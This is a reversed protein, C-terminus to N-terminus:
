IYFGDGFSDVYYYERGCVSVNYTCNAIAHEEKPRRCRALTFPAPPHDDILSCYMKIHLLQSPM